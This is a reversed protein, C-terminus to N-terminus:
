PCALLDESFPIWYPGLKRSTNKESGRNPLINIKLWYQNDVWKGAVKEINAGRLSEETKFDLKINTKLDENFLHNWWQYVNVVCFKVEDVPFYKTVRSKSIWVSGIKQGQKNLHLEVADKTSSYVRYVIEESGDQHSLQSWEDGSLIQGKVTVIGERDDLIAYGILHKGALKIPINKPSPISLRSGAWNTASFLLAWIFFYKRMSLGVLTWVFKDVYSIDM